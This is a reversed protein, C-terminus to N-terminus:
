IMKLALVKFQKRARYLGSRVSSLSIHEQDAIESYSKEEFFYLYLLRSLRGPLRALVSQVLSLQENSDGFEGSPLIDLDAFDMLKVRHHSKQARLAYDYCTNKLIKYAWSQFKAHQQDQFQPAHKYIKIFTDQVVDTAMDTSHLTYLAKRLFAKEYRDVLVAFMWPHDESYRLIEIDSLKLIEM